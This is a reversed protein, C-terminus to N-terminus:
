IIADYLGEKSWKGGSITTINSSTVVPHAGYFDPNLILKLATRPRLETALIETQCIAISVAKFVCNGDGKTEITRVVQKLDGDKFLTMTINDTTRVPMVLKGANASDIPEDYKASIEKAISQLRQFSVTASTFKLRRLDSLPNVGNAM